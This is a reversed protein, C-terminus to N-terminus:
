LRLRFVPEGDQETGDPEFGVSRYLRQAPLNEPHVTLVIDKVPGPLERIHELLALMAARGLGQGQSGRDIFFHFLWCEDLDGPRVALACFGVPVDGARFLLPIWTKNGARVYAKALAIAAIPAYDAVFRQQEPHVGLPLTARWNTATVHELSIEV